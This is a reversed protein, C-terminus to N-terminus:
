LSHRKEGAAPEEIEDNPDNPARTDPRPTKWKGPKWRKHVWFWNAPDHRIAVEFARNIELM